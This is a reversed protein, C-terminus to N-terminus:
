ASLRYYSINQLTEFASHRDPVQLGRSALLDIQEYLSLPPKSYQMYFLFGSINRM